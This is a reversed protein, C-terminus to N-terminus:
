TPLVIGAGAYGQNSVEHVFTVCDKVKAPAAGAGIALEPLQGVGVGVGVIVGDGVGNGTNPNFQVVVSSLGHLPDVVIYPGAPQTVLLLLWVILYLITLEKFQPPVHSLTCDPVAVADIVTPFVLVYM